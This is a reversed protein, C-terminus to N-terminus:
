QTPYLNITSSMKITRCKTMFDSKIKIKGM